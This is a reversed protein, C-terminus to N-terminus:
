ARASSRAGHSGLDRRDAAGSRGVRRAHRVDADRRRQDAVQSDVAARHAQPWRRPARERWKPRRRRPTREHFSARRRALRQQRENAREAAALAANASQLAAQFPAQDLEVLDPRRSRVPREDRSDECCSGAAPASLTASTGPARCSPASRASRRPSPRRSSSSRRRARRHNGAGRRSGRDKNCASLASLSAPSVDRADSTIMVVRRRMTPPEVVSRDGLVRLEATAIWAAALDDIYQALVDRARASRRSCTRCRRRERATHRSRCRWSM